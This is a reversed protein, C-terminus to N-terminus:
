LRLWAVLFKEAMDNLADINDEVHNVIERGQEEELEMVWEKIMEETVELHFQLGYGAGVRFAQNEYMESSALHRANEPLTFTDGHWHFAAFERPLRGMADDRVGEETLTVPRWGLEREGGPFVRAGLVSAMLQAGLCIGLVPMGLSFARGIYRSEDQIFPYRDAEYVGMPGGLVILGSFGRLAPFRPPYAYEYKVGRDELVHEFYGLHEGPANQIALIKETM